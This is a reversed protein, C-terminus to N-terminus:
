QKRQLKWGGKGDPLVDAGPVLTLAEGFTSSVRLVVGIGSIRLAQTVSRVTGDDNDDIDLPQWLM